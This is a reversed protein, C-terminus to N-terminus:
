MNLDKPNEGSIQPINWLNRKFSWYNEQLRSSWGTIEWVWGTWRYSATPDGWQIIQEQLTTKPIMFAIRRVFSCRLLTCSRPCFAKMIRAHATMRSRHHGNQAVYLTLTHSNPTRADYLPQMPATQNRRQISCRYKFPAHNPSSWLVFTM